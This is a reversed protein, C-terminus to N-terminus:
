LDMITVTWTHGNTIQENLLDLEHEKWDQVDERDIFTLILTVRSYPNMMTRKDSNVARWGKFALLFRDAEKSDGRFFPPPAGYLAGGEGQSTVQTAMTQPQYTTYTVPTNTPNTINHIITSLAGTPGEPTLLQSRSTSVIQTLGQSLIQETPSPKQIQPQPYWKDFKDWNRVGQGEIIHEISTYYRVQGSDSVERYLKYWNELSTCQDQIFEVPETQKYLQSTADDLSLLQVAYSQTSRDWYVGHKFDEPDLTSDRKIHEPLDDVSRVTIETSKTPKKPFQYTILKV